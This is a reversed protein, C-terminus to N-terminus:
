LVIRTVKYHRQVNKTIQGWASSKVRDQHLDFSYDDEFEEYVDFVNPNDLRQSVQFVVCGTESKTIFVHNSLESKVAKLEDEPVVIYGKLIVKSM